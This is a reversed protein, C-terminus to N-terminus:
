RLFAGSLYVIKLKQNSQLKLVFLPLFGQFTHNCATDHLYLYVYLNTKSGQHGKGGVLPISATKNIARALPEQVSMSDKM